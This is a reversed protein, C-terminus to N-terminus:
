VHLLCIIFVKCNCSGDDDCQCLDKNCDKGETGKTNCSCKKCNPYGYYGFSCKDCKPTKYGIKCDCKGSKQDCQLNVTGFESCNCM